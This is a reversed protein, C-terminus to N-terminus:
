NFRRPRGPSQRVRTEMVEFENGTMEKLMESITREGKSRRRVIEDHVMPYFKLATPAYRSAVPHGLAAHTVVWMYRYMLSYLRDISGSNIANYPADIM